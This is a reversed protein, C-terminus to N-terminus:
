SPQSAFWGCSGSSDVDVTSLDYTPVMMGLVGLPEQYDFEHHQTQM